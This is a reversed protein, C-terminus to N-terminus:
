ASSPIEEVPRRLVEDLIEVISRTSNILAGYVPWAVQPLDERSMEETLDQLRPRLSPQDTEPECIRVGLDHLLRLWVERFHPDWDDPPINAHQVTRTIARAQTFGEDIRLLFNEYAAPDLQSSRRRPNGRRAERTHRLLGRAEAVREESRLTRELWGLPEVGEGTTLAEAMERLLEGLESRLADVQSRALRDDLPALVVLNVLIGIAVGLGTCVLRDLLVPAQEAQGATVVFLATTAVTSGEDRIPRVRGILMGVLLALGLATPSQGVLEVAAYSLLIGAISAIVVQGGRTFSRFVTAHVTLLATWPAMFSEQLGLVHAAVLWALVAALVAKLIQSLDSRTRLSPMVPVLSARARARREETARALKM